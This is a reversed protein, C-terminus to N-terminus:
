IKSLIKKCIDENGLHLERIRKAGALQIQKRLVENSLLKKCQNACEEADSWFVAEKNDEYMIEHEVTREACLLGEAYPIELSRTTYLDRNGKSLLGLCIKAHQIAAVYDRGSLASGRYYEKLTNWHPSKQWRSGWISVNIGARILTLIFEDRNERRMWTGIFAVDSQFKSPIETIAKYPKHYIEDYSMSVRLVNKVGIANYEKVNVDRVVVCLDYFPLSKLLSKFRIGDRGGTPDDNNYLIIKCNLKKLEKISSPGFLEGGNVWILDISNNFNESIIKKLWKNISHSLFQYGTRYHILALFFNSLQFSFKYPNYIQVEHGLRKLACYRHYSTSGINSDGLYIIRM